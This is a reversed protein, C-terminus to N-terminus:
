VRVIVKGMSAGEMQDVFAKPLNEFGEVVHEHPTIEGEHCWAALQDMAEEPQAATHASSFVRRAMKSAM